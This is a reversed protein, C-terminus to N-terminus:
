LPRAWRQLILGLILAAHWPRVGSKEDRYVPRVPVEAVSYGRQALLLLLDNPYGYRPWIRDLPLSEACSALLATYGCQTDHVNLGSCWRTLMALARGAWRRLAPMDRYRPHAFRNGKVYSAQGTIAPALLAPLDSADMQADAAMVTLVDAGDCLAHYYGTVIAAGVGRNKSHRIRHLRADTATSLVRWTDDSSADDVVYIADVSAPMNSLTRLILREENFAPVIVAVRLASVM